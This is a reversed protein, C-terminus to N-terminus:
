FSLEDDAARPERRRPFRGVRVRHARRASGYSAAPVVNSETPDSGLVDKLDDESFTARAGDLPVRNALAADNGSGCGAEGLENGAWVGVLFLQILIATGAAVRGFRYRHPVTHGGRAVGLALWAVLAAMLWILTVVVAVPQLPIPLDISATLMSWTQPGYFAGVVLAPLIVLAFVKGARTRQCFDM